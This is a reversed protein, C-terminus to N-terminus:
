DPREVIAEMARVTDEEDNRLSNAQFERIREGLVLHTGLAPVDGSAIRTARARREGRTRQTADELKVIRFGEALLATRTEELTALFSTAATAAWPTPYHAPGGAGAILNMLVLRGGPKLVRRAERYFTRKDAINMIVNHSYARDFTADDFPLSLASGHVITVRGGLGTAGNLAVAARCFSETLDIGTVRCGYHAAIWRAPGGIGCGIDLIHEDKEPALMEALEKTAALGRGHLQDAPALVETTIPAGPPLSARAAAILREAIGDDEYHDAIPDSM